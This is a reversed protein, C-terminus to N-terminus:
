NISDWVFIIVFSGGLCTTGASVLKGFTVSTENESIGSIGSRADVNIDASAFKILAAMVGKVDNPDKSSAGGSALSSSAEFLNGVTVTVAITVSITVHNPIVEDTASSLKIGLIDAICKATRMM